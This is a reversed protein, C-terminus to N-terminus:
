RMVVGGDVNITQGTIFDADASALFRVTGVIDAALGHRQLPRQLRRAELLEPSLTRVVTDTATLGPSVVNVTIGYAGLESALCRSFGVVGAKAAAYHSFNSTGIFVTGSSFNIIRGWGNAKMLPLINSTM